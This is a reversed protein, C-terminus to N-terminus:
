AWLLSSQKNSVYMPANSLYIISLICSPLVFKRSYINLLIAHRVVEIEIAAIATLIFVGEPLM